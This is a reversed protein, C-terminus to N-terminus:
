ITATQNSTVCKVASNTANHYALFPFTVEQIQGEEPALDGDTLQCNSLTWVQSYGSPGTLTIIFAKATNAVFDDWISKATPTTDTTWKRTFSGAITSVGRRIPQKTNVDGLRGDVEYGNDITFEFGSIVGEHGANGDISVTVQAFKMLYNAYDPYTPSASALAQTVKQGILDYEFKVEEGAQWSVKLSKVMGSTLLRAKNTDPLEYNLEVSAAVATSVTGAGFPPGVKRTNTHTYPGAGATVLLGLAHKMLKLNARDDYSSPLIIKGEGHSVRDFSSEPDAGVNSSLISSTQRDPKHNLTSGAHCKAFHTRAVSTGYVTEEGVGVFQNYM